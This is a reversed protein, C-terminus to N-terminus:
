LSIAVSHDGGAAVQIFDNTTPTDTIQLRSNLGWSVLSGDSRLAVSHNEGAAVQIFDNGGPTNLVQSYTDEGWSVLSGDSRLAVSYQYGTSVQTFDNTTPTDSVQGHLDRGWSVLSGDSRLAVSHQWGGAVQTFDNTTPTDTVQNYEDYGWSVLTGDSKLAVSHYYGAEVQTFDNGAPTDSVQDDFNGGWSVLSGDSRLAVSHHYGGSVQTFDNTTPTDTVQNDFDNGWSVLSGDSLLAVSHFRGGGVQIFSTGIPTDLVENNIDRGWSVLFGEGVIDMSVTATAQSGFVDEIVYTFSDVGVYNALPTYEVQGNVILATGNTPPNVSVISIADGDIDSDNAMVDITVASSVGTSANDDVATPPNNPMNQVTIPVMNTTTFSPNGWINVDVAQFWVQMGVIASSPTPFPGLHGSGIGNLVMPSLQKIPMSLDLSLGNALTFPGTGNISYCVIAVGGPTGGQVEFAATGGIYIPDVQLTQASSSVTATLAILFTLLFHKM